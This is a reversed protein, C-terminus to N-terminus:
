RQGLPLLRVKRDMLGDLIQRLEELAGEWRFEPNPNSISSAGPGAVDGPSLLHISIEDNMTRQRGFAEGGGQGGGQGVGRGGRGSFLEPSIEFTATELALQEGGSILNRNLYLAAQLTYEQPVQAM